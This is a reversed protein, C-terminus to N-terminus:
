YPMCSGVKQHEFHHQWHQIKKEKGNWRNAHRERRGNKNWSTQKKGSWNGNLIGWLHLLMGTEHSHMDLSETQWSGCCPVICYVETKERRCCNFTKWKKKKEEKRRQRGGRKRRRQERHMSKMLKGGISLRHWIPICSEWDTCVICWM